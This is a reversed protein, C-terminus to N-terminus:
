AKRGRDWIKDILGRRYEDRWQWTWREPQGGLKVIKANLRSFRSYLANARYQDPDDQIASGFSPASADMNRECEDIKKLVRTRKAELHRRRSGKSRLM